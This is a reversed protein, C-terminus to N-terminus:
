GGRMTPATVQNEGVWPASGIAPWAPDVLKAIRPERGDVARIVLGEAPGEAFASPGLLGSLEDPGRLRGRFRLPPGALDIARLVGDRADVDLFRGSQRDLVDVGVLPSPLRDYPVGHRRRLWEAYLVRRDGLGAALLDGHASAWARIRGREGSRDSTAAGGRTGVCPTGDELWIMVNMGDLKEEVVLDAAMLAAREEARLVLDDSTAAPSPAVHSVRPYKPPATM